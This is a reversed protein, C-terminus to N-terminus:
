GNAGRAAETEVLTLQPGSDQLLVDLTELARDWSYRELIRSRAAAGDPTGEAGGLAGIVAEAFADASASVCIEGTRIDELGEAAEPTAIVPRAMAMGELVKNQIGRAIRLPAVVAGAHALYPRVDPVQGSVCVAASALGRVRSDPKGGVIYFKAKPAKSVILPMVTEAFWVVADVNPWYDMAGTFVIAQDDPSFPRPFDQDPSFYDYDVGNPMSHVKAASQPARTRFLAAEHPSVFLSAMFERAVEGEFAELTRAEREYLGRMPWRKSRAYQSWKDSDVDVFDMVSRSALDGVGRVYGAMQSSFVYANEPAHTEYVGRVWRQLGSDRYYALSLPAGSALGGLSRALGQLRSLSSFHCDACVERLMAEYQRDQEDDIFCGLHVRYRSALHKLVHWSRIKDGKNPPYPIRHALFLLDEM